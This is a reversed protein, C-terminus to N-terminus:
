SSLEFRCEISYISSSLKIHLFSCATYRQHLSRGYFIIVPKDPCNMLENGIQFLEKQKRLQNMGISRPFGEPAYKM